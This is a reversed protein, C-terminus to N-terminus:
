FFTFFCCTFLEATDKYKSRSILSLGQDPTNQTDVRGRGQGGEQTAM